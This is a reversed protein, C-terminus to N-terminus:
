KSLLMKRVENRSASRLAYFYTGSSLNKGDFSLTYVQNANAVDNFLTAVAQGLSNYVTVNVNESTKMAFTINTNPNFPNPFNQSLEYDAATMAVTANVVSSYEFQGDRDIQKLRYSVTGKASADVFSYSKPANTTGNGEVFGVKSWEAGAVSRQIEFGANNVETATKWALEVGRGTAAAKFSVLEVPLPVVPWSTSVYVGGVKVNVTNGATGQRLAFAGISALDTTADTETVTPSPETGDTVPNIFLSVVDDTTTGTNFTLKIVVLYTTNMSYTFGTYVASGVTGKYIGFALNNSGDKKVLLRATFSSAGSLFHMFYDGTTGASSVNIMASGYVSGSNIAGGTFSKSIDEGSALLQTSKGGSYTYGSYTLSTAGVVPSNTGAGSHATWGNSVMTTGDTYNFDETLLQASSFACVVVVLILLKKM